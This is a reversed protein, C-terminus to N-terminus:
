RVILPSTHVFSASQLAVTYAGAALGATPVVVNTLADDVSSTYRVVVNGAADIVMVEATGQARGNVVLRVVSGRDAVNPWVALSRVPSAAHESVSTALAESSYTSSGTAGGSFSEFVIKYLGGNPTAVFYATSDAIVYTGGTFSKWNSGITSISTSWASEDSPATLNPADDGTVKAVRVGVNTLVGTVGYDMYQGPGVPIPEMYRTFTIDWSTKAPERDLATHDTLSFYGFNKGPYDSRKVEGTREDSGDLNAYTFTYSGGSLGDIRIKKWVNGPLVLAYVTSAQVVHTAMNYKGWGFDMDDGATRNRNFAGQLWTTHDNYLSSAESVGSTDPAAWADDVAGPLPYLRVGLAGNTLISGDYGMNSFALHWSAAPSPVQTNTALTVFIQNAYSPGMSVTDQRAAATTLGTCLALGALPLRLRLSM